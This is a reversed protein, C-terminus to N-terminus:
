FLEYKINNNNYFLKLNESQSPLCHQYIKLNIGEESCKKFIILFYRLLYKQQKVVELFLYELNVLIEQTM